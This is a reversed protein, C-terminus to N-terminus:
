SADRAELDNLMNILAYRVDDPRFGLRQLARALNHLAAIAERRYDDDM